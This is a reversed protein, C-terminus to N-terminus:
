SHKPHLTEAQNLSWVSMTQGRAAIVMQRSADLSSTICLGFSGKANRMFLQTAFLLDNDFFADVSSNVMKQVDSEELPIQLKCGVVAKVCSARLLEREDNLIGM